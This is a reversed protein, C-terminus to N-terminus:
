ATNQAAKDIVEGVSNFEFSSREMSKHLSMMAVIFDWQQPSYGLSLARGGLVYLREINRFEEKTKITILNLNVPKAQSGAESPDLEIENDVTDNM